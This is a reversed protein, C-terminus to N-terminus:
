IVKPMKLKNQGLTLSLMDYFFYPTNGLKKTLEIDYGAYRIMVRVVGMLKMLM